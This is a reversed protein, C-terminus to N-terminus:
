KMQAKEIRETVIKHLDDQRRKLDELYTAPGHTPKVAIEEKEVGLPLRADRGYLMEFPMAETSSQNSSRYALLAHPLQEDM